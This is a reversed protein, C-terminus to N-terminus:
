LRKTHLLTSTCSYSEGKCPSKKTLSGTKAPLTKKLVSVKHSTLDWGTKSAPPHILYFFLNSFWSKKFWKTQNKTHTVTFFLTFIALWLSLFWFLIIFFFIQLQGLETQSALMKWHWREMIKPISGRGKQTYQWAKWVEEENNWVDM